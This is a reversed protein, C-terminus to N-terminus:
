LHRENYNHNLAVILMISLVIGDGRHCCKCINRLVRIDTRAKRKKRTRNVNELQRYGKSNAEMGRGSKGPGDERM